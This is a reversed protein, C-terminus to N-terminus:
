GRGGWRLRGCPLCLLVTDVAGDSILVSLLAVSILSLLAIVLFAICGAVLALPVLAADLLYMCLEELLLVWPVEFVNLVELSRHAEPLAHLGQPQVTVQLPVPSLVDSELVRLEGAAVYEQHKAMHFCELM